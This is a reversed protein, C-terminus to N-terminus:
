DGSFCSTFEAFALCYDAEIGRRKRLLLHHKCYVTLTCLSFDKSGLQSPRILRGVHPRQGNESVVRCFCTFTWPGTHRRCGPWDCPTADWVLCGACRNPSPEACIFRFWLRLM